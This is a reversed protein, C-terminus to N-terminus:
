FSCKKVSFQACAQIANCNFDTLDQLMCDDFSLFAVFFFAHM